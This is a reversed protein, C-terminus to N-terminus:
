HTWIYNSIKYVWKNAQLIMNMNKLKSFIQIKLYKLIKRWLLKKYSKIKLIEKQSMKM